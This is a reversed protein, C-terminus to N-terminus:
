LNKYRINESYSTLVRLYIFSNATFWQFINKTDNVVDFITIFIPMFLHSVIIRYFSLM